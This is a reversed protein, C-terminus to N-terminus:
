QVVEFALFQTVQRPNFNDDSVFVLTRHGNALTPGFCVGEINDITIGLSAFDLVLRKAMPVIAAGARAPGLASIAQVDTAGETSAEFLKVSVGHGLAYSREIVLFRSPAIALIESVSNIAAIIPVISPHPIPDIPYAYQAVLAGFGGAADRDFRSVRTLAGEGTTPMPGDELLPGEMAVWLSAGDDSLTTGEFVTNDRPGRRETSMHFMAPLPVAGLYRGDLAAQRIFPDILRPGDKARKGRVMREGESTWWLTRTSRDFRIAEADAVDLGPRSPFATGDPRLLTIANKLALNTFGHEAITLTATYFRAPSFDSRDDSIVFFTDTDPDYDIGSLGGVITGGFALRHALRQEGLFRLAINPAGAYAESQPPSVCNM